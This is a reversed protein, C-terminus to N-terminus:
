LFPLPIKCRSLIYRALPGRVREVAQFMLVDELLKDEDLLSTLHRLYGATALCDALPETFQRPEELTKAESVQNLSLSFSLSFPSTQTFVYCAQLLGPVMCLVVPVPLLIFERCVQKLKCYLETDAIDELM